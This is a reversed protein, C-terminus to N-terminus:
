LIANSSKQCHSLSHSERLCKLSHARNYFTVHPPFLYILSTHLHKAHKTTVNLKTSSSTCFPGLQYLPQKWKSLDMTRIM